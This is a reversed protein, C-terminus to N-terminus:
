PEKSEWTWTRVTISRHGCNFGLAALLSCETLVFTGIRQSCFLEEGWWPLFMNKVSVGCGAQPWNLWVNSYFENHEHSVLRAIQFHKWILGLNRLINYLVRKLLFSYWATNAPLQVSVSPRGFGTLSTRAGVREYNRLCYNNGKLVRVCSTKNIISM